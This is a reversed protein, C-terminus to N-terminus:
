TQPYNELLLNTPVGKSEKNLCFLFVLLIARPPMFELCLRLPKPHVRCQFTYMLNVSSAQYINM